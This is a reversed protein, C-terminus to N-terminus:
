APCSQRTPVWRQPTRPYAIASPVTIPRRHVEAEGGNAIEGSPRLGTLEDLGLKIQATSVSRSQRNSGVM